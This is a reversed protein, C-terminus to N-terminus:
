PQEEKHDERDAQRATAKALRITVPWGLFTGVVLWGELPLYTLLWITSIVALLGILLTAITLINSAKM